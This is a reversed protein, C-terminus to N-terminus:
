FKGDCLAAEFGSQKFVLWVNGEMTIELVFAGRLPRRKTGFAM